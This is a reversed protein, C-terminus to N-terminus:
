SPLSQLHGSLVDGFPVEPLPAATPTEESSQTTGASASPRLNFVGKFPCVRTEQPGRLVHSTPKLSHGQSYPHCDGWGHHERTAAWFVHGLGLEPPLCFM